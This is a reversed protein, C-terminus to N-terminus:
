RRSLKAWAEPEELAATTPKRGRDTGIVRHSQRVEVERTLGLGDGDWYPNRRKPTLGEMRLIALIGSLQIAIISAVGIIWLAWDRGDNGQSSILM